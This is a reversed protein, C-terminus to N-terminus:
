CLLMAKCLKEMNPFHYSPFLDFICNLKHLETGKSLFVFDQMIIFLLLWLSRVGGPGKLLYKTIGNRERNLPM